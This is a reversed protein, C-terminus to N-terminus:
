ANGMGWPAALRRTASPAASGCLVCVPMKARPPQQSGTPLSAAPRAGWPPFKAGWMCGRLLRVFLLRGRRHSSSSGGPLLRGASSAPQQCWGARVQSVNPLSLLVGAAASGPDNLQQVLISRILALIDTTHTALVQAWPHPTPLSHPTPPNPPPRADRAPSIVCAVSPPMSPLHM